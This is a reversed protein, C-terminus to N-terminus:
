ARARRRRVPLAIVEGFGTRLADFEDRHRDILVAIARLEDHIVRAAPTPEELYYAAHGLYRQLCKAPNEEWAANMNSASRCTQCVFLSFRQAGLRRQEELAEARTWVPFAHAPLRCETLQETDRCWPPMARVIHTLHAVPTTV